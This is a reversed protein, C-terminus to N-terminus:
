NVGNITVTVTATATFYGDSVTYTFTDTATQGQALSQFQGNPDYHITGDPNISVNGKTGPTGVSVLLVADGDPDSAGALVNIDIATNKDTSASVDNAIPPSNPNVNVTRSVVNSLNSPALGDNVQFSITRTGTTASTGNSDSYTVSQLAAQYDAPSANGSLTLVGTIPSYSGTIGNQSTFNLSDESAALGSSITVTAGALTTTDPSSVTLSSTVPVAPTGAYYQLTSPEINGLVPPGASAGTGSLSDTATAKKSAATLTATAIGASTPAFQVGVACSKGPGLSTASCTDSMITFASSGSLSVQLASSGSRGSNTLTFTQSPTQGVTVSGYDYPSPSFGLAPPGPTAAAGGAWLALVVAGAFVAAVAAVLRRAALVVRRAGIFIM